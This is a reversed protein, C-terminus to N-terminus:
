SKRKKSIAYLGLMGALLATGVVPLWINQARGSKPLNTTSVKAAPVESNVLPTADASTSGDNGPQKGTGSKEPTKDDGSIPLEGPDKAVSPQKNPVTGSTGTGSPNPVLGPKNTSAGTDPKNVIPTDPAVVQKAYVFKYSRGNNEGRTMHKGILTADADAWAVDAVARSNSTMLSGHIEKFDYGLLTKPTLDIEDDVYGAYSQAELENGDTDVLYVTFPQAEAHYQYVIQNAFPALIGNDEGSILQGPGYGVIEPVAPIEYAEGLHGILSFPMIQTGDTGQTIEQGAQDVYKYTVSAGITWMNDGTFQNWNSATEDNGNIRDCFLQATDLASANTPVVIGTPKTGGFAYSSFGAAFDPGLDGVIVSTLNQTNAFAYDGIMALKKLGTFDLDTLGTDSFASVGISTLASLKEFNFVALKPCNSFTYDGFNALAPLNDLNVGTLKPLSSFAGYGIDTLNTLNRLNVTTLDTFEYGFIYPALTALSPLDDLTLTELNPESNGFINSDFDALLPLDTFTATTLNRNNGFANTEITALQELSTLKVTALNQCGSFASAGITTLQPLGSIDLDTIATGYFANKAIIALETTASFDVEALGSDGFANTGITTLKPLKTFDLNGLRHLGYFANGGITTFSTLSDDFNLNEMSQCYGFANDAISELAPLEALNVTALSSCLVFADHPITTLLPLNKLTVTELAGSTTFPREGLTELKPLDILNIDVYRGSSFVSSGFTRLNPLNKLTLHNTYNGNSGNFAQDALSTVGPLNELMVTDASYFMDGNIVTLKPLDTVTVMQGGNNNAFAHNGITALDQLATLKVEALAGDAFAEAGIATLKPLGIFNFSTLNQTGYFAETDITMLQPLVDFSVTALNRCQYFAQEGITQLSTLGSFDVSVFNEGSDPLNGANFAGDAIATVDGFGTAFSLAGNWDAYVDDLFGESFGTIITKAGDAFMFDAKTFTHAVAGVRVQKDKTKPTAVPQQATKARASKLSPTPTVEKTPLKPLGAKSAMRNTTVNAEVGADSEAIPKAPATSEAPEVADGMPLDDPITITPGTSTEGVESADTQEKKDVEETREALLEDALAVPIGGMGGVLTITALGAYAMQKGTKHQATEGDAHQQNKENLKTENKM